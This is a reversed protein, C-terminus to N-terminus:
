AIRKDSQTEHYIKDLNELDLEMLKDLEADFVKREIESIRPPIDISPAMIHKGYLRRCLLFYSSPQSGQQVNPEACAGCVGGRCGCGRILRYGGCEYAQLITVHKPIEYKRGNIYISISTRSESQKECM